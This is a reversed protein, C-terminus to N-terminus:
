TLTFPKIKLCDEPRICTEFHAWDGKDLGGRRGKCSIRSKRTFLILM